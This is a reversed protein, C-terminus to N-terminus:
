FNQFPTGRRRAWAFVVRGRAVTNRHPEEKACEDKENRHSGRLLHIGIEGLRHFLPGSFGFEAAGKDIM